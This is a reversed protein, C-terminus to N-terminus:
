IQDMGVVAIMRAYANTQVITAATGTQVNMAYLTGDAYFTLTHSNFWPGLELLRATSTALLQPLSVRLHSGTGRLQVEYVASLRDFPAQPESSFEVYILTQGDPSFVPTTEWRYDAPSSLNQQEPLVIQSPSTSLPNGGINTLQLNNAYSLSAIDPPVSEDTPVPATGENSSYLLLNSYPAILLPGQLSDEDLLQVPADLPTQTLDMAWLGYQVGNLSNQSDTLLLRSNGQKGQGNLFSFVRFCPCNDTTQQYVLAPSSLPGAYLDINGRGNASAVTYAVTSGDASLALSTVVQNAGISAIQRPTGDFVDTIWVGDGAYLLQGKPTLIPRVAQSYLYGPTTIAQPLGGSSSIMYISSQQEYLVFHGPPLQLSSMPQGNATFVPPVPTPLATGQPTVTAAPTPVHTGTPSAPASTSTPTLLQTQPLLESPDLILLGTILILLMGILSLLSVIGAKSLRAHRDPLPQAVPQQEGQEQKQEPSDNVQPVM